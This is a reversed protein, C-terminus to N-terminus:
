LSSVRAHRHATNSASPRASDWHPTQPVRETHTLHARTCRRTCRVHSLRTERPLFCPVHMATARETVAEKSSSAICGSDSGQLGIQASCGQSGSRLATWVTREEMCSISIHADLLLERMSGKVDHGWFRGRPTCAVISKTLFRKTKLLGSDTKNHKNLLKLFM